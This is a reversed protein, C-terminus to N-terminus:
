RFELKLVFDKWKEFFKKMDPRGLVEQLTDYGSPDKQCRERFRQYFKGQYPSATAQGPKPASLNPGSDILCLRPLCGLDRCRSLYNAPTAVGGPGLRFARM